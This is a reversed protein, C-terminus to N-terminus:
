EANNRYGTFAGQLKEDHNQKQAWCKEQFQKEIQALESKKGGAGDEGQLLNKLGDLSTYEEDLRQNATAIKELTDKQKEGLTIVGKLQAFNKEVFDRNLVVTELPRGNKWKVSCDAYPAQDAIVRSITTKGTGNSGFLYNFQRLDTLM